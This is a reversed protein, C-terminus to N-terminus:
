RCSSRRTSSSTSRPAPAVRSGDVSTTVAAIGAYQGPDARLASELRQETAPVEVVLDGRGARCCAACRRSPPRPWRRWGTPRPRAARSSSWRTPRAAYRSRARLAVAAVPPRGRRHGRDRLHGGRQAFRVRVEMSEPRPDFGAFRWSAQVYATFAGDPAVGGAQDVYRLSFGAVHLARGNRVVGALATAAAPPRGWGARRRGADDRRVATECTTCCPPRRPRRRRRPEAPRELPAHYTSDRQTLWVVLGVVLALFLSLGAVWWRPRGAM